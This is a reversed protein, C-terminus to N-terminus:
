FTPAVEKIDAGLAGSATGLARIAGAAGAIQDPRLSGRRLSIGLHTLRRTLGEVKEALPRLRNDALADEHATRLEHVAFLSAAGAKVIRGARHPAGSGFAGTRLPKSVYRHFAGFALGMHLVFKTKPFHINPVSTAPAGNPGSSTVTKTGGGCGSVALALAALFAVVIPARPM